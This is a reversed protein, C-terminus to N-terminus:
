SSTRMDLLLLSIMTSNKSKRMVSNTSSTFLSDEQSKTSRLGHPNSLTQNMKLSVRQATEMLRSSNKPNFLTSASTTTSEQPKNEWLTQKSQNLLWSMLSDRLIKRLLMKELLQFLWLEQIRSMVYAVM